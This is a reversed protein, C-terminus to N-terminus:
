RSAAAATRRRARGESDTDRNGRQGPQTIYMKIMEDLVRSAAPSGSPHFNILPASIMIQGRFIAKNIRNLHLRPAAQLHPSHTLDMNTIMQLFSSPARNTIVIQPLDTGRCIMVRTFKFITRWIATLM